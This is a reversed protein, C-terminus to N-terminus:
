LNRCSTVAGPPYSAFPIASLPFLAQAGGRVPPTNQCCGCGGVVDMQGYAKQVAVGNLLGDKRDREIDRLSDVSLGYPDASSVCEPQAFPRDPMQAWGLGNDQCGKSWTGYRSKSDLPRASESRPYAGRWFTYVPEDSLSGIGKCSCYNDIKRGYAYYLLSGVVALVLVIIIVWKTGTM